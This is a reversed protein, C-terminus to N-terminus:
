YNEKMLIAMMFLIILMGPDADRLLRGGTQEM